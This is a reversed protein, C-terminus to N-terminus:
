VMLPKLRVSPSETAPSKWRTCSPARMSSKFTLPLTFADLAQSAAPPRAPRLSPSISFQENEPLTEPLLVVPPITPSFVALPKM